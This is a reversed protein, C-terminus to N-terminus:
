LSAMWRRVDEGHLRYHRYSQNAMLEWLPIAYDASKGPFNMAAALLDREDLAQAAGVFRQYLRDEGTIVEVLAMRHNQVVMWENFADSDMAEVEPPLEVGFLDAYTPMFRTRTCEGIVAAWREWVGLHVILDRVSWIGVANARLMDAEGVEALLGEWEARGAYIRDLFERKNM